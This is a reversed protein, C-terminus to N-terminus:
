TDSGPAPPTWFGPDANMLSQIVTESDRRGAAVLAWQRYLDATLLHVAGVTEATDKVNQGPAPRSSPERTRYPNALWMTLDPFRGEEKIYRERHQRIQRADNTKTGSTYGKVEVIAEWGLVGERTLRLDERKPEDQRLEADMDRVKFGLDDLMVGVAATLEDSDAWLAQRIGSDAREGESALETQLQDRESILCKLGSEIQTIRDALLREKPSYWDSPQTLRPPAQPVRVPDVEHLECLFARFWAVLNSAEPLLLAIPRSREGDAAKGRVPLVLRLAVSHGSTTSIVPTHDNRTTALTFPPEARQGLKRSLESALEKYVEPCSLSVALERETNGTNTRLTHSYLASGLSYTDSWDISAPGITMLNVSNNVGVGNPANLVLVDTETYSYDQLYELLSDEARLEGCLPAISAVQGDDLGIAAVRPRKAKIM